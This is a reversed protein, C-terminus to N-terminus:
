IFSGGAPRIMQTEPLLRGLACDKKKSEGTMLSLCKVTKASFLCGNVEM